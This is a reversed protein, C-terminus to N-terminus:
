ASRPEVIGTVVCPRVTAPAPAPAPEQATRRATQKLPKAQQKLSITEPISTDVPIQERQPLRACILFARGGILLAILMIMGGHLHIPDERFPVAPFQRQAAQRFASRREEDEEAEGTARRAVDRERIIGLREVGFQTLTIDQQDGEARLLGVPQPFDLIPM